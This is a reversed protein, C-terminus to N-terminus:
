RTSSFFFQVQSGGGVVPGTDYLAQGPVGAGVGCGPAYSPAFSPAFLASAAGGYSAGPVIVPAQQIVFQQRPVFYTQQPAFFAAAGVHHGPFFSRGPFLGRRPFHGPGPVVVPPVAGVVINNVQSPHRRGGFLRALLGDGPGRASAEPVCALSLALALAFLTLRKM